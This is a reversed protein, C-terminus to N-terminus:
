GKVSQLIEKISLKAQSKWGSLDYISSNIGEDDLLKTLDKINMKAIQDFATIGIENLSKELVPGIGKIVKLDDKVDTKKIIIKDVIAKKKATAKESVTGTINEVKGKVDDIIDETYDEPDSFNPEEDHQNDAYDGASESKKQKRAEQKEGREAAM